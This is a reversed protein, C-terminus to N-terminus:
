GLRLESNRNIFVADGTTNVIIAEATINCTNKLTLNGGTRVEIDGGEIEITIGDCLEEAMIIWDGIGFATSYSINVEQLYPTYSTDNTTLTARYQLYKTSSNILNSPNTHNASWSTWSSGDTSTRTQMSINSDIISYGAPVSFSYCDSFDVPGNLTAHGSEACYTSNSFFVGTAGGLAFGDRLFGIINDVSYGAPISYAYCADTFSIDTTLDTQTTDVCFMNNNFFIVADNNTGSDWVFGTVDDLSYGGQLTYEHCEDTFTIAGGITSYSTDACYTGDNFFIGVDDPVAYNWMVGTVDNMSYGGPITFTNCASFSIASTLANQSNNYCYSGNKFFIGADNNGRIFGIVPSLDKKWSLNDWSVYTGPYFIKSYYYGTSYNSSSINILTLSSDFESTVYAVDGVVYLGKPYDISNPSADNVYDGLAVPNKPDSVDILTLSNDEASTVYAVDGMVYLDYAGDISNPPESDNYDGLAVPNKPDSVNILTLSDDLQSTVYAVDGVVYVERAGDISNPSADDVYDGLAVPNTKNSVNILTLSDDNFSTVYAVDGVVYVGMAYDISNPPAGDVYDGLAVPNTPDSVNILTLSDDEGSTVYAVDGIIYVGRPNDISNPPADDVYDGLAVPNTKNSVNILTLSDDLQSTVYAVDGVVYVGYAAEISNPPGTDVYDGLAVPNYYSSLIINENDTTTNDHTSNLDWSSFRFDSDAWDSIGGEDYVLCNWRYGEDIFQSGSIGLDSYINRSFTTSNDTGGLDNTAILQWGGKYDSYLSINSLNSDTDTASCNFVINEELNVSNNNNIPFNLSASPPISIVTFCYIESSANNGVTDNAWYYWCVNSGFPATINKSVSAEHSSGSISVNSDNQWTGSANTSFIFYDLANDTMTINATFNEYYRFNDSTNVASSFEPDSTDFSYSINVQELYPTFSANSTKLTARYQLYRTSSNILGSPSNHNSSWSTWSSGDTSTRTQIQIHTNTIEYPVTFSHCEDTFAMDTLLNTQTGDVCFKGNNFFVGADDADDNGGWAFGIIDNYSYGPPITYSKGAVQTVDQLLNPQTTDTTLSGNLYFLGIDRSGDNGGWILGTINETSFGAIMSHEYCADTFSIDTTLDTQTGDVCFSRNLFFIGIDWRTDDGGWVLGTANETTFGAPITFSHCEDTFAIDTTFNSQDNDVCFTGNKYFVGVDDAADDGSWVFGIINSSDNIEFDWSINDWSALAGADFIKSYYHGTTNQYKGTSNVSLTINENDTTTNYYSSNLDWSSFTYNSDAWDSFGSTDYVLCNWKFGSDLFGSGNIGIDAFIDRTFTTSNDSGTLDNTAILQWTGNYDSYFSINNLDGDTDAASCNFVIDNSFNVSNNNNVPFNLTVSPANSVTISDTLSINSVAFTSNCSVNWQYTASSSFTRNYEWYYSSSNYTMNTYSDSFNITCNGYTSNIVTGNTLTYNAYFFIQENTSRNKSGGEPDNDDWIELSTNEVVSYNTFHTVNFTINENDWAVRICDTCLAGDKLIKPQTLGTMELTINASRNLGSNSSSNVFASNDGIIIDSTSNGILNSGSGNIAELFRIEGHTTNKFYVIGGTGTFSYNSIPQDILYTGNIGADAFYLDYGEVKNLTNNILNNQAPFNSSIANFHFAHSNSGSTSLINNIISNNESTHAFFVGDNYDTGNTSISNNIANNNSSGSWFTIGDNDGKAGNTIITNNIINNFSSVGIVEIGNQNDGGGNTSLNNLKINNNNSSSILIAYNNNSSSGSGNTIISNNIIINSNSSSTLYVGRNNWSTGFPYLTNNVITCNTSSEAYIANNDTTGGTTIINNRITSNEVGSLYIADNNSTASGGHRINCNRITLNDWGGSNNIGYGAVSQSYNITYGACDLTVNDAGITFCTGASSVNNYLTYVATSLIGCKSPVALPRYDTNNTAPTYSSSPSDCFGDGNTDTCTDSFNEGDPDTWYNGGICPGGLINSQTCDKSVNWLNTNNVNDSYLNVTNNFLNNYFTNNVPYNSGSADLFIGYQSNNEIHSNNIINYQSLQYFVVGSQQNSSVTINTFTNNDSTQLYIGHQTNSNATINTFTNINSTLLYIGRQTNSNATIDTITDNDSTQLYIGYQTNSNTTIDTLINNDSFQLHIGYQTNSNTTIDTLINNNFDSSYLGGVNSNATINTLNNNNSSKIHIGYRNYSSNINSINSNDTEYMYFENNGLTDSGRITVNTVNSNDANCLILTSLTKDHIDASYNYYEIPRNGSGTVNEILNNCDSESTLFTYFDYFSNEQFTSNIIRNSSSSHLDIGYNNDSANIDTLNNDSSIWIYLGFSNDTTTINTLINDNASFFFIGYYFGSVNTCDMITNHNSVGSLSIGYGSADGDGGITFGDCDFTIDDKGSFEICNGVQGTISKNLRVIDGGSADAIAATCDSCNSCNYVNGSKAWNHASANQDGFEFLQHHKGSTLVKVTHHSTESCNWDEYFVHTGNFIVDGNDIYDGVVDDGCRLELWKLDDPLSEGYTTGNYASITLNATGSTVFRVTWNGGVTPYSQVNLITIELEYTQNSLSPVVWEIRDILSNENADIYVIDDVITREGNNLWYLRIAEKPREDVATHSLIDTYHTESSVTIKKKHKSIKEEIKVPGPTLYTIEINEAEKSIELEISGQEDDEQEQGGDEQEDDSDKIDFETEDLETKTSIDKLSLDYAEAPLEVKKTEHKSKHVIRKWKVPEDLAVQGVVKSQYPISIGSGISQDIDMGANEETDSSSKHIDEAGIDGPPERVKDPTKEQGDIDGGTGFALSTNKESDALRKKPDTNIFLFASLAVLMILFAAIALEIYKLNKGGFINRFRDAPQKKSNNRSKRWNKTNKSNRRNSSDRRNEKRRGKKEPLRVGNKM